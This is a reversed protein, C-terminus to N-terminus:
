SSETTGFSEPFVPLHHKACYLNICELVIMQLTMDRRLAETRLVKSVEPPYYGVVAKKDARAAAIGSGEPLAKRGGRQKRRPAATAEAVPAPAPAEAETATIARKLGGFSPAKSMIARGSQM